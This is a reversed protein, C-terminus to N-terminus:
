CLLCMHRVEKVTLTDIHHPGLTKELAAAVRTFLEFAEEHRGRMSLLRALNSESLALETDDCHHHLQEVCLARRFAAEAEDYKGQM